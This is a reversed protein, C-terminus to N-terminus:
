GVMLFADRSPKFRIGTPLQHRHQTESSGPECLISGSHDGYFLVDLVLTLEM